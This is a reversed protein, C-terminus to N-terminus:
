GPTGAGIRVGDGDVGLNPGSKIQVGPHGKTPANASSEKRASARLGANKRHVPEGDATAM